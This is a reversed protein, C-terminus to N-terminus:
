LSLDPQQVFTILADYVRVLARRVEADLTWRVKELPDTAVSCTLEATALEYKARELGSLYIPLLDPRSM